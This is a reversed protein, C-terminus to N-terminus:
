KKVNKTDYARGLAELYDILFEMDREGKAYRENMASLSNEGIGEKVNKLFKDIDLEAGVIRNIEKGDNSIFLLTPFAKVAFRKKLEVGEGKEMDVKMSVFVQNFYDGVKKQPFVKSALMKCPGCWSTYCDIFLMKGEQKAQALAQDFTKDHVFAVGENEETTQAAVNHAALFYMLAALLIIYNKM